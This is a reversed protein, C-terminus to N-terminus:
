KAPLSAAFDAAEDVWRALQEDDELAAHNVMAWGKMARGTLDFPRVHPEALADSAAEEGLRCILDDEIVGCCMNGHLLFAVGGFMRKEEFGERDGVLERVRDALRQDFAM